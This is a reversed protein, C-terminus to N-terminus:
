VEFKNSYNEILKLLSDLLTKKYFSDSEGRQPALVYPREWFLTPWGRNKQVGESNYSVYSGKDFKVEFSDDFVRVVRGYGRNSSIDFVRDNLGILENHLKM